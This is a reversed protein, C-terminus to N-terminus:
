RKVEDTFSFSTLATIWFLFISSMNVNWLAAVACCFQILTCKSINCIKSCQINNWWDRPFELFDNQLAWATGSSTQVLPRPITPFAFSTIPGLLSCPESAESDLVWLVMQPPRWSPNHVLTDIDCHSSYKQIKQCRFHPFTLIILIEQGKGTLRGTSTMPLCCFCRRRAWFTISEIESQLYSEVGSFAFLLVESWELRHINSVFRMFPTGPLSTRSHSSCNLSCPGKLCM